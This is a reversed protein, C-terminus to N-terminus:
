VRPWAAEQTLDVDPVTLEQSDLLHVVEDGHLERREVLADAVREVAERNAEVLTHAKVYAQGLLQAVM